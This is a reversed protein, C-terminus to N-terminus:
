VAPASSLILEEVRLMRVAIDLWKPATYRHAGPLDRRLRFDSRAVISRRLDTRRAAIILLIIRRCTARNRRV